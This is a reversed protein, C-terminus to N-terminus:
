IKNLLNDLSDFRTGTYRYGYDRILKMWEDNTYSFLYLQDSPNWDLFKSLVQDDPYHKECFSLFDKKTFPQARIDTGPIKWVVSQNLYTTKIKGWNGKELEFLSKSEADVIDFMSGM